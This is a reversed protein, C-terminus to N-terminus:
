LSWSAVTDQLSTVNFDGGFIFDCGQNSHILGQLYGVTHEYEINNDKSGNRFPIYVSVVILDSSNRSQFKVATCRANDSKMLSVNCALSSKYLMTTGGFPRGYM